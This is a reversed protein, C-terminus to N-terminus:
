ELQNRIEYKGQDERVLPEGKWGGIVTDFFLPPWSLDSPKQCETEVKTNVPQQKFRLFEVFKEAEVLNEPSLKNILEVLRERNVLKLAM